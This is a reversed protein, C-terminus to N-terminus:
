PPTDRVCRFGSDDSRSAPDNVSRGMASLHRQNTSVWSGGRTVHRDAGM